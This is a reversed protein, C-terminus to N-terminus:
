HLRFSQAFADCFLDLLYDSDTILMCSTDNADGFILCFPLEEPSTTLIGKTGYSADTRLKINLISDNWACFKGVYQLLDAFDTHSISQLNAINKMRTIAVQM